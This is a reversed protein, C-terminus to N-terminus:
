GLSRLLFAVDERSLGEVRHGQQTVLQLAKSETASKESRVAVKRFGNPEAQLWGVVTPYSLGLAGATARVSVGRAREAAVHTVIQRRLDVPYRQRGARRGRRVRLIADRLKASPRSRM